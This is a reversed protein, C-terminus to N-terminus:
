NSDIIVVTIAMIAAMTDVATIAATDAGTIATDASIVEM